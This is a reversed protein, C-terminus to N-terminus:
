ILVEGQLEIPGSDEFFAELTIYYKRESDVFTVDLRDFRLFDQVQGAADYIAEIIENEDFQKTEFFPLYNLGEDSNLKYETKRTSLILWFAQVFIDRGYLMKINNDEIIVDGAGNLAFDMKEM